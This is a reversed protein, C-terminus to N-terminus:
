LSKKHRKQEREKYKKDNGYDTKQKLNNNIKMCLGISKLTIDLM